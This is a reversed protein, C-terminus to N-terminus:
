AIVGLGLWQSMTAREYRQPAQYQRDQSWFRRCRGLMLHQDRTWLRYFRAHCVPCELLRAQQAKERQHRRLNSRSSFVRGECGHEFCARNAVTNPLHTSASSLDHSVLTCSARERRTRSFTPQGIDQDSHQSPDAPFAAEDHVYFTPQTSAISLTSGRDASNQPSRMSFESDPGYTPFMLSQEVSTGTYEAQSSQSTGFYVSKSMLLSISQISECIIFQNDSMANDWTHHEPDSRVLGYAHISLHEGHNTNPTYKWYYALGHH